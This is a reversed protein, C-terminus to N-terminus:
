RPLTYFRHLISNVIELQSPTLQCYDVWLIGRVFELQGSAPREILFAVLDEVCGHEDFDSIPTAMLEQFCPRLGVRNRFCHLDKHVAMEAIEHMLNDQLNKWAQAHRSQCRM